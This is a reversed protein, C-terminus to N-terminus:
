EQMTRIKKEINMIDAIIEPVSPQTVSEGTTALFEAVPVIGRPGILASKMIGIAITRNNREFRHEIWIWETDWYIVRSRLQYKQFLWLPYRYRVTAVRVIPFWRKKILTLFCGARFGIGFQGLDMLSVYRDNSLRFYDLDNPLVLLNLVIEDIVSHRKQFFSAIALWLIRLKM